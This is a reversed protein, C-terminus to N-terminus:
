HAGLRPLRKDHGQEPESPHRLFPLFLYPNNITVPNKRNDCVSIIVHNPTFSYIFM